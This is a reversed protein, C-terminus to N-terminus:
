RDGEPSGSPRLNAERNLRQQANSIPAVGDRKSPGPAGVQVRFVNLDDDFSGAARHVAVGVQGSAFPQGRAVHVAGGEVGVAGAHVGSAEHVAEGARDDAQAGPHDLPSADRRDLGSLHQEVVAPGHRRAVDDPGRLGPRGPQGAQPARHCGDVGEHDRGLGEGTVLPGPDPQGLVLDEAVVAVDDIVPGALPNETELTYFELTTEREAARFEWSQRTWGMDTTSKGTADFQFSTEQGAARVGLRKVLPPGYTNAALAFTMRYVRGPKTEFTQQIGGFGPTGHLDLSRM